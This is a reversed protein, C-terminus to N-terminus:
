TIRHQLEIAQRKNQVPLIFLIHTVEFRMIERDISAEFLDHPAYLTDFFAVSLLNCLFLREQLIM